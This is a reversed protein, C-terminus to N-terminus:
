RIYKQLEAVGVPPVARYGTDRIPGYVTYTGSQPRTCHGYLACLTVGLRPVPETGLWLGTGLSPTFVPM